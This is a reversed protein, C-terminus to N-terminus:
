IPKEDERSYLVRFSNEKKDWLLYGMKVLENVAVKIGAETRQSRLRIFTLYRPDMRFPANRKDNWIVLLVKRANDSLM